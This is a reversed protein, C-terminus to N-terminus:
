KQEIQAFIVQPDTTVPPVPGAMALKDLTGTMQSDEDIRIIHPRGTDACPSRVTYDPSEVPVITM